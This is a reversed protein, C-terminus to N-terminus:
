KQAPEERWPTSTASPRLALPAEFSYRPRQSPKMRQMVVVPKKFCDDDTRVVTSPEVQKAAAPVKNEKDVLSNDSQDSDSSVTPDDRPNKKNRLMRDKAKFVVSDPKPMTNVNTTNSSLGLLARVDIQKNRTKVM